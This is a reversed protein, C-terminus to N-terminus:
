SRSLRNAITTRLLRWRERTAEDRDLLWWFIALMLCSLALKIAISIWLGQGRTAFLDTLAILAGTALYAGSPWLRASTDHARIAYVFTIILMIAAAFLSAYAAGLYGFRPIALAFVVTLLIASGYKLVAIYGTKESALFSFNHYMAMQQLVVTFALPPVALSAAHFAPDAMVRIVTDAFLSIGTGIFVLAATVVSYVSRFVPRGLDDRNLLQFRETQWWQTFPQWVLIVILSGFRAALDYLGVESLDGFFRILFRNAFNIYVTAVGAVWLPWSFRILRKALSLSVRLGGTHYLTYAGMALAVTASSVVTSVVVGAVGWELFVVLVINLTLALMLKALSMAVFLVPKDQLRIFTLGYNEIAVTVLTLGYLAIYHSLSSDALFAGALPKATLVLILAGIASSTVTVALATGIVTGRERGGDQEFYFKPIAQAFRAGIVLEFISLLLTLMAVIGYDAPTLYRTYIPLMLFGVIQRTITGFAYIGVHAAAGRKRKRQNM